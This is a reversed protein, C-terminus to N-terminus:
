ESKSQRGLRELRMRAHRALRRKRLFFNKIKGVKKIREIQRKEQKYGTDRIYFRVPVGEIGFESTLSNKMYKLYNEKFLRRNNVFVSFTPPRSKIQTIFRIKLHEGNESPLDQTKKFRNLWDNLLGTSVRLNWCEYTKLVADMVQETKYNTLGSVFHLPINKTEGLFRELQKYMFKSAKSRWEQTVLDWKNVVIVIGRGEKVVYQAIGMDQIRFADLADIVCVVVNSYQIAKISETKMMQEVKSHLKAKKNLGATDIL